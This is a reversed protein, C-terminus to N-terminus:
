DHGKTSKTSGCVFPSFPIWLSACHFGSGKLVSAHSKREEDEEEKEVEDSQRAVWDRVLPEESRTAGDAEARVAPGDELM